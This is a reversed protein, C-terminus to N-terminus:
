GQLEKLKELVVTAHRVLGAKRKVRVNVPSWSAAIVGKPSILFTSRIVGEFERGYNKKLGWAGYTRMVSKDTDSLLNVGLDHKEIFGCHSKPSDPSIGFVNANLKTFDDVLETFDIAENTCGSTNDKPYFYLVIWKGKFDDLSIMKGNSDPLKFDLSKDM